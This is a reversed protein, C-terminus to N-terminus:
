GRTKAYAVALVIVLTLVTVGAGAILAKKGTVRFEGIKFLEKALFEKM